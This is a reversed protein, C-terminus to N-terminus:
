NLSYFSLGMAMIYAPTNTTKEYYENVKAAAAELAQSFRAYKPREAHLSWARYLTELAPLALHLTSGRKSSFAQQAV